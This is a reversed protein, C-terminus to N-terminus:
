RKESFCFLKYFFYYKYTVISDSRLCKYKEQMMEPVLKAKLLNLFVNRLKVEVPLKIRLQILTELFTSSLLFIQIM